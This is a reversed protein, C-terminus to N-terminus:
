LKRAALVNVSRLATKGSHTLLNVELFQNCLVFPWTTRVELKMLRNTEAILERFTNRIGIKRSREKRQIRGACDIGFPRHM